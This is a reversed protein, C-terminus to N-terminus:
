GPAELVAHNSIARPLGERWLEARYFGPRDAVGDHEHVGDTEVPARMVEEGSRFLRLEVPGDLRSLEVSLLARRAELSSGIGARRGHAVLSLDVLPGGTAVVAGRRLGDLIGEASDDRAHVATFPVPGPVPTEQGPGHWDRAAVATIRRGKGWLENWRARAALNDAEASDWRRYWVELLDLDEPRLGAPMRCGTCIPDGSRFPHAVSILAGKERILPALEALSLVKGGRHWPILERTGYIPHHGNFTTLECGPVITLPLGGVEFLGATTNHDTLCLFDLGLKAARSALEGVEHRGDSHVSHSHMEGLYWGPGRPKRTVAQAPSAPRLARLEEESLPDRSEVQLEYSVEPGFVGHVEVAVCWRGAGIRGKLFGKSALQESVLHADQESAPNRDWRGRWAGSPDVLVANLLNNVAGFLHAVEAGHEQLNKQREEPTARTSAHLRLAAEILQQNTERDTSTRPGFNFRFALAAVGEPVEFPHLLVRKSDSARATGRHSLLTRRGSTPMSLSHVLAYVEQGMSVSRFTGRSLFDSM